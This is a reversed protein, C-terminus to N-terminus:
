KCLNSCTAVWSYCIILTHHHDSGKNKKCIMLSFTFFSLDFSSRKRIYFLSNDDKELLNYNYYQAHTSLPQIMLRYISIRDSICQFGATVNYAYQCFHHTYVGIAGRIIRQCSCTTDSVQRVDASTNIRWLYDGTKWWTEFPPLGLLLLRYSSRVSSRGIRCSRRNDRLEGYM